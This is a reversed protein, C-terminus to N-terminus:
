NPVTVMLWPKCAPLVEVQVRFYLSDDKLYQCQKDEQLGLQDRVIFKTYGRGGGSEGGLVRSNHVDAEVSSYTWTTLYHGEDRLQNLLIITCKYRIPWTLTDDNEGKMLCLFVSVHTGKGDGDGNAYVLLCMKYGGTHTYFGPSYWVGMNTRLENFGSLKIVCPNQAHYQSMKGMAVKLDDKCSIALNKLQVKAEDLDRGQSTLKVMALDLHHGCSTTKHDEMTRRPSNYTCGVDKYPCDITKYPCELRHSAMQKRKIGGGCGNNPCSVRIDPCEDLHGGIMEMYTGKSKCHKCTYQRLPCRETCHSTHESKMIQEKCGNACPIFAFGCIELHKELSGLENVWPCGASTCKVRM